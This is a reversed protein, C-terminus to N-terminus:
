GEMGATKGYGDKELIHYWMIVDHTYNHYTPWENDRMISDDDDDYKDEHHMGLDTM